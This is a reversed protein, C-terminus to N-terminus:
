NSGITRVLTNKSPKKIKQHTKIFISFMGTIYKLDGNYYDHLIQVDFEPHFQYDMFSNVETMKQKPSLKLLAKKLQDPSFPKDSALQIWSKLSEGKEELMASATLAIIPIKANPNNQLSRSVSSPKMDM